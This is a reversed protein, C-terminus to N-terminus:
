NEIAKLVIMYSIIERREYYGRILAKYLGPNVLRKPVAENPFEADLLMIERPTIPCIGQEPVNVFLRMYEPYAAHLNDWFSCTGATPLKLPLHNYQQNGLRSYFVDLRFQWDNSAPQYLHVTGNIVTSTRNYKRVRLDMWMIDQGLSQEFRDLLVHIGDTLQYYNFHMVILVFVIRVM